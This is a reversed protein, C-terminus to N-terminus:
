LLNFTHITSSRVTIKSDLFSEQAVELVVEVCGVKTYLMYINKKIKQISPLQTPTTFHYHM